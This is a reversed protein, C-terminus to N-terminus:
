LEKKFKYPGGNGVKCNDDSYILIVKQKKNFWKRYLYKLYKIMEIYLYTYRHTVFTCVV